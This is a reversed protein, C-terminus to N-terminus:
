THKVRRPTWATSDVIFASAGVLKSEQRKVEAGVRM